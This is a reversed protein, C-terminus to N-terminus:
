YSKGGNEMEKLQALDARTGPLQFVPFKLLVAAAFVFPRLVLPVLAAEVRALWGLGAHVLLESGLVSERQVLARKSDYILALSCFNTRAVFAQLDSNM